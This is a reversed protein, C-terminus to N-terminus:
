RMMMATVLLKEMVEIGFSSFSCLLRGMNSESSRSTKM